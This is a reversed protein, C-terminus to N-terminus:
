IHEGFDLIIHSCVIIYILSHIYLQLQGSQVAFIM